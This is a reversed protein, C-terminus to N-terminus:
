QGGAGAAQGTDIRRILEDTVDVTNSHYAVLDYQLILTYSQEQGLERVARLVRGQWQAQAQEVELQLERSASKELGELEFRKREIRLGLEKRKDTSLSAATNVFEEELKRIEDRMTQLEESKKQQLSTLRAQILSGESTEQSVRAPDFVGIKLSQAASPLSAAVAIAAVVAWGQIITRRSM